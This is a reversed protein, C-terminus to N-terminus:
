RAKGVSVYPTTSLWKRVVPEISKSAPDFWRIEKNRKWYALQKKAYRRIDRYLEEEFEERSIKNQLLRALSRYELGLEEMRKFSVGAERLRKGEAIMGANIRASLRSRINKELMKFDPAIGIWLADCQLSLKATKLRPKAAAIELARILRVKNNRESPTSMAKARRPDRKTLLAYLQAASKKQLKGRLARNPAVDPFAIRGLLSDIYYGTGGVVIPLRTHLWITSSVKRAAKAYDGASFKRKPSVIDLLHHPVGRMEKKTIKGTGINLGKYVQRSDASIVEGKFKRALAVGLASKGSATPGVIVLVKQLEM